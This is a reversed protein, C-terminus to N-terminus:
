CGMEKMMLVMICCLTSFYIFLKYVGGFFGNYSTKM